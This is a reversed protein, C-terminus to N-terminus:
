RISVYKTDNSPHSFVIQWLQMKKARFTGACALLFYSWMRFFAPSYKDEIKSYNAVFNRYWAMLTLDYDPGFNHWDEMIFKGESAEGIQKVSPLHSNPFIYKELWPDNLTVTIASGITHLLFLGEPKLLKQAVGFFDNYNKSGVHEFMGLSVIRDYKETPNHNRYDDLVFEIPLGACLKEGLIKQEKSVTLGVCSVGYKQSAYKMFSGWGCGIDLVKMGKQLQLKQCVLELKHEQAEDLSKANKWYGCTYVMRKDLMNQFFDNGTDYHKQGVEFSRSITQPNFIKSNLAGLLYLPNKFILNEAIKEADIQMLKSVMVDIQECDWAGQMYGEGLGLSGQSLVQDFFKIDNVKIDWPRDGNIAIDAKELISVVLQKSKNNM